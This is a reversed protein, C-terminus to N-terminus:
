RGQPGKDGLTRCVTRRRGPHQWKVIRLWPGSLQGAAAWRLQWGPKDMGERTRQDLGEEVEGLRHKGGKCQETPDRSGFM